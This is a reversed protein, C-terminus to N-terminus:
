TTYFRLQRSGVTADNHTYRKYNIINGQVTETENTITWVLLSNAKSGGIWDWTASLTNFVQVGTIASWFTTPFEAKQKNIGDEAVMTMQVFVSNHAALPQKTLTTLNVTTAFYPYVGTIARTIATTDGAPLPTLYDNDYSSKPQSGEDYSISGTWNQANVLVTYNSVIQSDTLATKVQDLLGTGSYNYSNPLGARYPSDATYQPVISGRNFASNFTLSPIIEGVERFGTISSTFTSSPATLVPFKEQKILTDWMETMTADVFVQNENIGGVTREATGSYFIDGGGSQEPRLKKTTNKIFM